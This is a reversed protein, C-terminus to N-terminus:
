VAVRLLWCVSLVSPTFFGQTLGGDEAVQPVGARVKLGAEPWRKLSPQPADLVGASGM